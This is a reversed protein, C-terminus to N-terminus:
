FNNFDSNFGNNINLRTKAWVPDYDTFLLYYCVLFPKFDCNFDNM